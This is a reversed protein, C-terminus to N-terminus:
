NTNRNYANYLLLDRMVRVYDEEYDETLAVRIEPSLETLGTPQVDHVLKLEENFTKHPQGNVYPRKVYQLNNGVRGLELKFEIDTQEMFFEIDEINIGPDKLDLQSSTAELIDSVKNVLDPRGGVSNSIDKIYSYSSASEGQQIISYPNYTKEKLRNGLVYKEMTGKSITAFAKGEEDDSGYTVQVKPATKDTVDEPRYEFSGTIAFNGDPQRVFQISTGEIPKINRPYAKFVNAKELIINLNQLDSPDKVEYRNQTSSFTTPALEKELNSKLVGLRDDIYSKGSRLSSEGGTKLFVDKDGIGLINGGSELQGAQAEIFQTDTSANSKIFSNKRLISNIVEKDKNSLEKKEGTSFSSNITSLLDQNDSLLTRLNDVNDVRGESRLHDRVSNTFEPTYPNMMRQIMDVGGGISSFIDSLGRFALPLSSVGELASNIKDYGLEKASKPIVTEAGYYEESLSNLYTNVLSENKEDRLMLDNGYALKSKLEFTSRETESLSDLGEEKIKNTLSGLSLSTALAENEVDTFPVVKNGKPTPQVYFNFDNLNKRAFDDATAGVSYAELAQKDLSETITKVEFIKKDLLDKSQELALKQDLTITKGNFKDGGNYTKIKLLNEPTVTGLDIGKESINNYSDKFKKDFAGITNLGDTDTNLVFSEGEVVDIEVGGQGVIVEGKEVLMDLEEETRADKSKKSGQMSNKLAIEEMKLAHDFLKVQLKNEKMERDIVTPPVYYADEITNLFDDQYMELSMKDFSAQNINEKTSKLNNLKNKYNSLTREYSKKKVSPVDERKIFNELNEIDRQVKNINTNLYSKYSLRTQDIDKGRGFQDWSDIKMQQYAKNSLNATAVSRILDKPLSKIKETVTYASVEQGDELVYTPFGQNNIEERIGLKDLVGPLTKNLESVYDYNEIVKAGGNYSKSLDGSQLWDNMGSMEMSYAQNRDLYKDPTEKQFEEWRQLDNKFLKTSVLAKKVTDDIVQSVDRQLSQTLVNSSLDQNAYRNVIDTVQNLRNATYEKDVDRILDLDSVESLAKEIKMRNTDLKSQKTQLVTNILNIDPSFLKEDFNNLLSYANAM